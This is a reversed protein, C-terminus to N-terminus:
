LCNFNCIRGSYCFKHQKSQYHSFFDRSVSGIPSLPFKSRPIPGQRWFILTNCRFRTGSYCCQFFSPYAMSSQDQYTLQLRLKIWFTIMFVNQVSCYDHTKKIFCYPIVNSSVCLFSPLRSCSSLHFLTSNCIPHSVDQSIFQNNWIRSM